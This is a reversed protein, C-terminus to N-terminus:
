FVGKYLRNDGIRRMARHIFQPMNAVTLEEIRPMTQSEVALAFIKQLVYTQEKYQEDFNLISKDFFCDTIDSYDGTYWGEEKCRDGLDTGPFPSFISAWAYDPRCTMNIALTYLDMNIDAKPLALINQIMFKIDHKKLIHSADIAEQNSTQPRGIIERLYPSATELAMRLSACGASKLYWIREETVQVPRLHCHFPTKVYKAYAECFEALWDMDVGFCSDQFYNFKSKVAILESIVNEVSRYRMKRNEPFMTKWRKNYCYNCSYPCSRTTIFDRIPQNPFSSRDPFPLDDLTEYKIGTELFNAFWQEAEGQVVYDWQDKNKFDEPFFTPHCNGAISIFDLNEKLQHNLEKFKQQDGTLISYGIIRPEFKHAFEYAKNLEIIHCSHGAEKAVAALYMTGLTEIM